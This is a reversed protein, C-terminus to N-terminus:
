YLIANGGPLRIAHVGLREEITRLAEDTDNTKFLGSVTRQGLGSSVIWIKGARYRNLENTVDSLPADLFVLQGRRWASAVFLDANAQQQLRHAMVFAQDGAGLALAASPGDRDGSFRVHGEEVTVTVRDDDRRVYFHTGTVRVHGEGADVFFPRRDGKRVAFYAEGRTLTVRRERNSFALDIRSGSNLTVVSGDSLTSRAQSGVDAVADADLDRLWPWLSFVGFYVAVAAVALRLTPLWRRSRANAIAPMPSRVEAPLMAIAAEGLAAVEAAAFEHAPAEALWAQYAIRVTGTSDDRLRLRWRAAARLMAPTPDYESHDWKRNMSM